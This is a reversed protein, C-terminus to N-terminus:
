GKEPEDTEGSANGEAKLFENLREYDIAYAKTRNAGYFTGSLLLGLKELEEFTRKITSESWFPFHEERWQDYSNYVWYRGDHLGRKKKQNFETWYHVQQLIITMNLATKKSGSKQNQAIAVAIETQFQLVPKGNGM